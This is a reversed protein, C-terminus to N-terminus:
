KRHTSVCEKFLFQKLQKRVSRLENCVVLVCKTHTSRCFSLSLLARESRCNQLLSCLSLLLYCIFHTHFISQLLLSCIDAAEILCLTPASSQTAVSQLLASHVSVALHHSPFHVMYISLQLPLYQVFLSPV